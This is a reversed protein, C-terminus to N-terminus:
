SIARILFIIAVTGLMLWFMIRYGLDRAAEDKARKGPTLCSGDTHPAAMALWWRPDIDWYEQSPGPRDCYICNM